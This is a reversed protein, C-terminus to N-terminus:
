FTGFLAWNIIESGAGIGTLFAGYKGSIAIKKSFVWIIVGFLGIMRTIQLISYAAQRQNIPIQPNYVSLQLVIGVVIGIVLSEWVKM